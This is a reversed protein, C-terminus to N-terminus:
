PARDLVDVTVYGLPEEVDGVMIVGRYTGPPHDGIDIQLTHQGREDTAFGVASIAPLERTSAYLPFARLEHAAAGDLSKRLKVTVRVTRKASIEVPCATSVVSRARQAPAEAAHPSAPASAAPGRQARIFQDLAARLTAPLQVTSESLEVLLIAAEKALRFTGDIVDAADPGPAASGTRLRRAWEQGRRIQEDAIQHAMRVSRVVVDESTSESRVRPQRESPEPPPFFGGTKRLPTTRTPADRRLRQNM